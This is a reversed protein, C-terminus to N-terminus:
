LRTMIVPVVTYTSTLNQLPSVGHSTCCRRDAMIMMFLAPPFPVSAVSDPFVKWESVKFVKFIQFRTDPNAFSGEEDHKYPVLAIIVDTVFLTQFDPNKHCM